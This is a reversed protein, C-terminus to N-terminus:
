SFRSGQRAGGVDRDQEADPRGAIRRLVKSGFGGIQAMQAIRYGSLRCLSHPQM